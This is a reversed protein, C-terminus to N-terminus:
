QKDARHIMMVAAEVIAIHEEGHVRAALSEASDGALVPV